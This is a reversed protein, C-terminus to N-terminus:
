FPHSHSLKILITMIDAITLFFGKSSIPYGKNDVLTQFANSQGRPYPYNKNLKAECSEDM